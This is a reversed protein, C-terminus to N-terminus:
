CQKSTEKEAPHVTTFMTMEMMPSTAREVKRELEGELESVVLGRLLMVLLM